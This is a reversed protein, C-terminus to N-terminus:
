EWHPIISKVSRAIGRYRKADILVIRVEPHSKAMRKLATKSRPYFWGKVEHYEFRGSLLWVKFDPKYSRCGRLINEFWFTDPEYEWRAVATGQAIMSNLYRANNAEWSSRLYQKLDDRVGGRCRTFVRQAERRAAAESMKWGILQRHQPSNVKANPDAWMARSRESQKSKWEASRHHGAFGRPHGHEAQYRKTQESLARRREPSSCAVKQAASTNAIARQTRIFKGRPTTIGLENAKSHISALSRGMERAVLEVDVGAPSLVSTPPEVSGVGDM